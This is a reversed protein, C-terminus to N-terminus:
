AAGRKGPTAAKAATWQATIHRAQADLLLSVFRTVADSDLLTLTISNAVTNVLQIRMRGNHWSVDIGDIDDANLCTNAHQFHKM